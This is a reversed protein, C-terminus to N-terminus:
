RSRGRRHLFYRGTELRLLKALPINNEAQLLNQQRSGEGSANRAPCVLSLAETFDQPPPEAGSLEAAALPTLLAAGAVGLIRRRTFHFPKM